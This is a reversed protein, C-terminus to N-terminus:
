CNFVGFCVETPNYAFDLPKWKIIQMKLHTLKILKSVPQCTKVEARRRYDFLHYLMAQTNSPGGSHNGHHSSHDSHNDHHDHHEDPPHDPHDESPHEHYEEFPWWGNHIPRGADVCAFLEPLECPMEYDINLRTSNFKCIPHQLLICVIIIDTYQNKWLQWRM